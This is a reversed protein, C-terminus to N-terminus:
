YEVGLEALGAEVSVRGVYALERRALGDDVTVERGFLQVASRTVPPAGSRRLLRWTAEAVWAGGRAVWFPVTAEPPVVGASRLLASVFRRTEVPEGDTLFYAAGARGREAACLAGECVNAVHCTSTPYRGGGIWRLQGRAAAEAIKPLLSTDGHGWIFRPRVVMAEIGTAARVVQEALAKTEPYLGLWSRPLPRSEDMNALASGDVYAAETGIHVFRRVGAKKAAEVANATGEVNVRMFDERRGWDEVKAAAHFVVDCGRMGAAMADVAVPGDLDGRAAEAGAAVVAAAAGESRALAVVADGRGVLARILARGVFGSGGTVFSRAM